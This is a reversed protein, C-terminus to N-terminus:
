LVDEPNGGGQSFLTFFNILFRLDIHYINALQDLNNTQVQTQSKPRSRPMFDFARTSPRKLGMQCVSVSYWKGEVIGLVLLM